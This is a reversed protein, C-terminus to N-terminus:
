EEHRRIKHSDRRERQRAAERVDPPLASQLRRTASQM